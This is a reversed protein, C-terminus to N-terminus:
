KLLRNSVNFLFGLKCVANLMPLQILISIIIKFPDTYCPGLSSIRHKYTGSDALSVHLFQNKLIAEM